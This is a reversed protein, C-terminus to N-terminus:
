AEPAAEGGKGHEAVAWEILQTITDDIEGPKLGELGKFADPHEQGFRISGLVAPVVIGIWAQGYEEPGVAVGGGHHEANHKAITLAGVIAANEWAEALCEFVARYPHDRSMEGLFISARSHETMLSHVLGRFPEPVENTNVGMPVVMGGRTHAYDAAAQSTQNLEHQREAHENTRKIAESLSELLRKLADGSDRTPEDGM